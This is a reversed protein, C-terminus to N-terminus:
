ATFVTSGTTQRGELARHAEVADALPLTRNVTIKVGQNLVMDFLAAASQVLDERDATYLILSPRTLFLSGGAALVSIDFPEIPGSSQGYSVMMGRPRLCGLSDSFTDKGVSDYVVAVGKGDTVDKVRDVVNERTYIIAHDCGNAKALEAKADNGVTGIVTAGLRKAWQCSILGVGGAAAHILIADGAKVPYTRQLLYEATMGKLMMGAATHDDIGDPVKVVRGAPLLRSQAYAGVPLSAYAVRDGVALDTVGSGVAEVTGAAELGPSFPSQPAPYLGSRFYVDIYNLGVATNRVRIEGDQPEGVAVDEWKMVEPGGPEHVLIAKTM